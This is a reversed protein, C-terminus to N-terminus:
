FYYTFTLFYNCCFWSISLFYTFLLFCNCCFWSFEYYVSAFRIYAPVDVAKLKKMTLEAIKFSPVEQAFLNLLEIEVESVINKLIDLPVPRKGCARLLMTILKERDFRQRSKDKKVVLLPLTEVFEYTTFRGSCSLCERRRRTSKGDSTSRSDVVKSDRGKCHPCVM